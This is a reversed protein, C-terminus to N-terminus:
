DMNKMENEIEKAIVALRLSTAGVQGKRICNGLVDKKVGTNLSQMSLHRAYCIKVGALCGQNLLVEVVQKAKEGFVWLVKVKALEKKLRAINIPSLIKSNRAESRNNDKKSLPETFANNFYWGSRQAPVGEIANAVMRAVDLFNKGTKGACPRGAKREVSGPCSFLAGHSKGENEKYCQKKKVVEKKM